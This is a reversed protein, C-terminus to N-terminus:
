ALQPADVLPEELLRLVIRRPKGHLVHLAGADVDDRVALHPALAVRVAERRREVADVEVRGADREVAGSVLVRHRADDARDATRTGDLHAVDLEQARDRRLPDLDGHGARERHRLLRLVVVVRVIAINRERVGLRHVLLQAVELRRAGVDHLDVLRVQLRARFRRALVGDVRDAAREVADVALRHQVRAEAVGRDDVVPRAPIREECLQILAGRRVDRELRRLRIEIGLHQARKRVLRDYEAHEVKTRSLGLGRLLDGGAYATRELDDRRLPEDDRRVAAHFVQRALECETLEFRHDGTGACRLVCMARAYGSRTSTRPRSRVPSRIPRSDNVPYKWRSSVPRSGDSSSRKKRSRSSTAIASCPKIGDFTAARSVSAASGSDSCPATAAPIRPAPETTSPADSAHPRSSSPPPSARATARSIWSPPPLTGPKPCGTCVGTSGRASRIRSNASSRPTLPAFTANARASRSATATSHPLGSTMFTAM